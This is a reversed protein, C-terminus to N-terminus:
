TRDGIRQPKGHVVEMPISDINAQASLTLAAAALLIAISGGTRALFPM